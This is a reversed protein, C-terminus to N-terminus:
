IVASSGIRNMRTPFDNIQLNPPPSAMYDEEQITPENSMNMVMRNTNAYLPNIPLDVSSSRRRQFPQHQYSPPVKQNDFDMPIFTSQGGEENWDINTFVPPYEMMKWYENIDEMM